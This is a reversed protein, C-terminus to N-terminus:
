DVTEWRSLSDYCHLKRGDIRNRQFPRRQMDHCLGRHRPTQEKSKGPLKLLYANGTRANHQLLSMTDHSELLPEEIRQDPAAKVYDFGRKEGTKLTNYKNRVPQGSQRTHMGTLHATMLSPEINASSRWCPQSHVPLCSDAQEMSCGQARSIEFYRRIQEKHMESSSHNVISSNTHREPKEVM